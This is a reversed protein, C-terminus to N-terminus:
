TERPGELAVSCCPETQTPPDVVVDTDLQHSSVLSEQWLAKYLPMSEFLTRKIDYEEKLMEVAEPNNIYYRLTHLFEEILPRYVQFWRRNRQVRTVVFTEKGFVEKPKYQLFDASEIDMIEM